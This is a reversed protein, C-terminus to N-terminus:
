AGIIKSIQEIVDAKSFSHAMKLCNKKMENVEDVHFVAYELKEKFADTNGLEYGYGVVGDDFVGLHNQWLSSIVPVGACYADILTGPIGETAFLTPFLLLFYNKIIEVSNQPSVVGRYNIYSPAKEIQEGFEKKYEAGIEGYIDLTLLTKGHRKNIEKVADMADQIGKEKIVRSFTCVPLPYLEEFVLESPSLPIIEKFNPVVAVNQFGQATLERKMQETEVWIGDFKQLCIRLRANKRTLEPLWGGVVDYYINKKKRQAYLMIKAFFKVGNQAPLIIFCDCDRIFRLLSFFLKMPKRMWGFTELAVVNGEGYQGRLGQYLARTKVPQGGTDLTEFGFAGIIGIRKM